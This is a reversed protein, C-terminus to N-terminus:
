TGDDALRAWCNITGFLYFLGFVTCVLSSAMWFAMSNQAVLPHESVFPAVFGAIGRALYIFTILSLALRPLPLRYIVGAGSLAYLGWVFLIVAIGLTMLAPQLSGREALSAM